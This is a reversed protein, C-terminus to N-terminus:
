GILVILNNAATKWKSGSTTLHTTRSYGPSKGLGVIHCISCENPPMSDKRNSQRSYGSITSASQLLLSPKSHFYFATRSDEIITSRASLDNHKSNTGLLGSGYHCSRKITILVVRINSPKVVSNKKNSMSIRYYSTLFDVKNHSLQQV